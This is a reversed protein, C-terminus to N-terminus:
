APVPIRSSMETLRRPLAVVKAYPVFAFTHDLFVAEVDTWMYVVSLTSM